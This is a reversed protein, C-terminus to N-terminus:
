IAFVTCYTFCYGHNLGEFSVGLMVLLTVKPLNEPMPFCQRAVNTISNVQILTTCRVAIGYGIPVISPSVYPACVWVLCKLM